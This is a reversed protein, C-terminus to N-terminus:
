ASDPMCSYAFCASTREGEGQWVGMASKRLREGLFQTFSGCAVSEIDHREMAVWELNQFAEWSGFRSTIQKRTQRKVLEPTDPSDLAEKYAALVKKTERPPLFWVDLVDESGLELLKEYSPWERGGPLELDMNGTPTDHLEVPLGDVYVGAWDVDDVAFLPPDLYYGNWTRGFGNSIKLFEKYDDPLTTEFRHELALIQEDTAPPRFLSEPIPSGIEAYHDVSNKKTNRELEELLERISKNEGVHAKRGNKFRDAFTELVDTALAEVKAMDVPIKRALAGTALLPWNARRESVYQIVQREHMRKFILGLVEQVRADAEIDQMSSTHESALRIAVSLADGLAGSRNVRMPADGSPDAPEALKLLKKLRALDDLANDEEGLDTVEQVRIESLKEETRDEERIQEPWQNTEAFAFKLFRFQTLQWDSAYESLLLSTLSKATEIQGLIAFEKALETMTYYLNALGPDTLAADRDFKKFQSM